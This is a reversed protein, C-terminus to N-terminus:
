FQNTSKKHWMKNPFKQCSYEALFVPFLKTANHWEKLFHRPLINQVKCIYIALEQKTITTILM